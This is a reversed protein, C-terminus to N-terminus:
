GLVRLQREVDALRARTTALAAAIDNARAVARQQRALEAGSVGRRLAAAAYRQVEQVPPFSELRRLQAHLARRESQLVLRDHQRGTV